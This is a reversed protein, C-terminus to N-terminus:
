SCSPREPSTEAPHCAVCQASESQVPQLLRRVAESSEWHELLQKWEPSTQLNRGGLSLTPPLQPRPSRWQLALTGPVRLEVILPSHGDDMVGSEVHVRSVLGLVARNGLVLDCRSQTAQGDRSNRFTFEFHEPSILLQLDLLPGGPGLLRTLLPCVPGTQSRYDRVPNVTGNFDGLILTPIQLDLSAVFAVCESRVSERCADGVHPAYVSFVRLGLPIGKRPPVQVGHVRAMAHLRRWAAGQPPLPAVAVGSAALIGVGCRVGHVGAREAPVALGHHLTYSSRQLFARARELPLPALKTEQLAM